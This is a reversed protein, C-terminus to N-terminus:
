LPWIMPLVTVVLGLIILNLWIGVRAYDSFRYGGPGYIIVNVQHGVPMLFSTSAALVTAMVFPEPAAGLGFAADIAIPVMLVTAAANSIVETLLATLLFIGALAVVPGLNGVLNVLQDALLRATGTEEMAIGLPLMGAILFVSQWDIARYSEEMTLVGTIIMLVAGLVMTTAIDLWGFTATLLAAFLIILAVPAKETRRLELPPADLVLFNPNKRLLGFKNPVGQVLLADGFEIPM